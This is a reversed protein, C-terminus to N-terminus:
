RRLAARLAAASLAGKTLFRHAAIGPSAGLDGVDWASLIVVAPADPLAVIREAFALGDGDPLEVDVLVVDPRHTRVADDGTALDCAEAVVDFGDAELVRRATARFAAHDDILLVRM